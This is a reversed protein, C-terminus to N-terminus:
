DAAVLAAGREGTDSSAWVLSLDGKSYRKHMALTALVIGLPGSAAGVDGWCDAPATFDSATVFHERTRTVAFGFEDSRYPEGNLDCYIDSVLNGPPRASFVQEFAGTLGRGLCVSNTRILCQERDVGTSLLRALAQPGREDNRRPLVLVAGAGEGPVFGWANNKRGAGHIQNTEELWELTEVDVYSDGGAVVCADAEGAALSALGSRLAMFGAAHGRQALLIRGFTGRFSQQLAAHVERTLADSLGPRRIPLAVLLDIRRRSSGSTEGELPSVAQRVADILCATIRQVPNVEPLLWPCMALQMPRAVIDTMFPHQCFGSIGARVAAACSLANRGVPTAAGVGCVAAPTEPSM